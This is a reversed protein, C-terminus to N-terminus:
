IEPGETVRPDGLPPHIIVSPDPPPAEAGLRRALLAFCASVGLLYAAMGFCQAEFGVGVDLLAGSVGPGLASAFVMVATSVAKIGGLWRTGYLEAFISGHVVVVGGSGIGAVALAAAGVGLAAAGGLLASGAAWALLYVPLLRIAGWRDAAWGFAFSAAISTASFAPYAIAAYDIAAWGKIETLHIIQFFIVTGIWSPAMLGPLFAWFAWHRLMEGRTWHRSGMGPSVVAEAAAKPSRERRLLWLLLPAVVFVLSAAAILWSTRWGVVAVIALAASPFVAESVAIGLSAIAVARARGARFWRAMATVSLHSLMGQGCFRLGFVLLALMWWSSVRSVGICVLAFAAIVALAVVRTRFVDALRGAQTLVVASALTATMYIAGWDGHSLGFEERWHGAYLSIFFTQGFGTALAMLAGACLWPANGRLFSLFDM